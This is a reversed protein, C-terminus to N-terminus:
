SPRHDPQSQVPAPQANLGEEYGEIYAFEAMAPPRGAVADLRGQELQQMKREKLTELIKKRQEDSV